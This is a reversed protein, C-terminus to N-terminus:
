GSDISTQQLWGGLWQTADSKTRYEGRLQAQRAARLAEGMRKGPAVGAAAVDGSSILDYGDLKATQVHRELWAEAQERNAFRGQLQADRASTLVQQYYKGPPLGMTQLDRGQLLSPVKGQLCGLHAAKESLSQLPRQSPLPPRGSMDAETMRDLEGISAPHVREALTLAQENTAAPSQALSIHDMHHSVLSEIRKHYKPPCGIQDLFAGTMGTEREHGPSRIGEGRKATKAMMTAIAASAQESTEGLLAQRRQKTAANVQEDGVTTVTKGLDHCVASLVLVVRDDGKVGDRDAIRAAADAVHMTHQWADGEPHHEPDQPVGQLAQLAPTHEDWGCDRLAQLGASPRVGKAAMKQWEGWIREKPLKNFSQKLGRAMAATTPHVQSEWRAAFQMARLVRLPDHAFEDSTHRLTHSAIDGMGGGSMDWVERSAPDYYLANLTLDRRSAAKRVPLHPDIQVTADRHGGGALHQETRPQAVDLDQGDALRVKLVGFSKGVEDVRGHRALVASISETTGGFVELDIDKADLGMLHDRVCGGAFLAHVGSARLDDLCSQTADSVPLPKPLTHVEQLTPVYGHKSLADYMAAYAGHSRAAPMGSRWHKPRDVGWSDMSAGVRATKYAALAAAAGTQAAKPASQFAREVEAAIEKRQPGVMGGLWKGRSQECSM